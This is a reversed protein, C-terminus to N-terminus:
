RNNGNETEFNFKDFTNKIINRTQEILKYLDAESLSATEIPKHVVMRMLGPTGGNDLGGGPLRKWNDIITVPVIAVKNEIALRFAGSKFASLKPATPHIGGEPFIGLSDGSKLADNCLNFSTVSDKVSKRNVSIDITRFFLGFLPFKGLEAKALFRFYQGCQVNLSLIDLYSFHNAVFIYQGNRNLPEEFQTKPILGSFFMIIRGWIARLKHAKPYHKKDSLFFLFLPYFLIFIALFWLFFYIAWIFRIIKKM